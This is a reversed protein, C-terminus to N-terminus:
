DCNPIFKDRGLVKNEIMRVEANRYTWIQSNGHLGVVWMLDNEMGHDILFLAIGYGDPTYLPIQPDIQLIM